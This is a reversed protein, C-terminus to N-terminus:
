YRERVGRKTREVSRTIEEAFGRANTRLITVLEPLLRDRATRIMDESPSQVVLENNMHLHVESPREAFSRRGEKEREMYMQELRELIRELRDGMDVRFPGKFSSERDKFIRTLREELEQLSPMESRRRPQDTTDQTEQRVPRESEIRVEPVRGVIRGTRDDFNRLTERSVRDDRHSELIKIIERTLDVQERSKRVGERYVATKENRGITSERRIQEDRIKRTFREFFGKLLDGHLRQGFKESVRDVRGDRGNFGGTLNVQDIQRALQKKLDEFLGSTRISSSLQSMFQKEFEGAGIRLVDLGESHRRRAPLVVEGKHLMAYMDEPVEGGHQYSTVWPQLDGQETDWGPATTDLIDFINYGPLADAAQPRNGPSGLDGYIRRQREVWTEDMNFGFMNTRGGTTGGGRADGVAGRRSMQSAARRTEEDLLGTAEALDSLKGALGMLVDRFPGSTDEAMQSIAESAKNLEEGLRDPEVGKLKEALGSLVDGFPGVNDAALTNIERILRDLTGRTDRMRSATDRTADEANKMEDAMSDAQETVTSSLFRSLDGFAGKLGSEGFLKMWAENFAAFNGELAQQVEKSFDVLFGGGGATYKLGSGKLISEFDKSVSFQGFAKVLEQELGQQRAAPILVTELSIPSGTLSKRFPEFQKKSLGLGSIFGELTSQEVGVKFDRTIEKVGSKVADKKIFKDWLIKGGLLGAGIAATIPNSFIAPLLPALATMLGGGIAAGLKGGILNGIGAGLLGPGLFGMLSTGGFYGGLGGGAGVGPVSGAVPMPGGATWLPLAQQLGAISIPGAAAGAALTTSSAVQIPGAAGGGTFLGTIANTLANGGGGGTTQKGGTFLDFIGGFLGGGGGKGGTFIDIIGGFLGGSPGQGGFLASSITQALNEGFKMAAGLIPKFISGIVLKLLTKGLSKIMDMLDNGFQKFSFRMEGLGDIWKGVVNGIAHSWADNWQKAFESMEKAAKEGRNGFAEIERESKRLVVSFNDTEGSAVKVAKQVTDLQVANLDLARNEDMIWDTLGQVKHTVGDVTTTYGNMIRNHREQLANMDRMMVTYPNFGEEQLSKFADEVAALAEAEGLLNEVTKPLSDKGNLRRHAEATDIITEYYLKVVDHRDFHELLIDLEEGLANAPQLQDQFATTLQKVMKAHEDLAGTNKTVKDTNKEVIATHDVIAEGNRVAEALNEALKQNHETIKQNAVDKAKVLAETASKNVDLSAAAEAAARAEGTLSETAMDMVGALWDLPGTILWTLLDGLQKFWGWVTQLSEGLWEFVPGLIPVAEAVENWAWAALEGIKSFVAAILNGFSTGVRKLSEWVEGWDILMAILSGIAIIWGAPGSLISLGRLLWPILKSFGTTIFGVAGSLLKSATALAGTSTSATTVTTGYTALSTTTTTAAMGATSLSVALKGGLTALGGVVNVLNGAILIIPGLAALLALTAVTAKQIPAPLDGFWKAMAAIADIVDRILPIFNDKIIPLLETGLEVALVKLESILQGFQFAATETTTGFAEALIGQSNKIDETIGLFEEGQAGATGLVGSLARVNPIVAALAEENGKFAGVLDLLTQTLGKEKISQRLGEVSMHVGALAEEAETSPKLLTNLTGRLATVAEDSKVGLRTFTAIFGGVEEFSVGVQSAIGVVRGLTGALDAAELNGKRVTAVMIETARTANLNENGYAQMAATVARAIETTDGLGVASAQAANTLIDLADTAEAGASTVVFMAQALEQPARATDKSLALIDKSWTRVQDANVGVLTNIKTLEQEYDVALKTVAGGVAAIPATVGILMSSGVQTMSSGVAQWQSGIKQLDTGFRNLSSRVQSGTKEVQRLAQDFKKLPITGRDDVTITTRIEPM